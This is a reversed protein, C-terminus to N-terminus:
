RGRIDITNARIKIKNRTTESYDNANVSLFVLQDNGWNAPNYQDIPIYPHYQDKIEYTKYSQLVSVMEPLPFDIVGNGVYIIDVAM